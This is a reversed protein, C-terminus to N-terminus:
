RGPGGHQMNLAGVTIVSPDNGPSHIGGYRINGDLDKGSNGAACVVVIGAAVAQRAAVCLPDTQYSEGPHHGLSLNMVRINYLQKNQVCWEIGSIVTSVSGSGNGELVKVGVLDADPAAGTIEGQSNAGSGLVTGAVHTGHGNDDYAQTQNNILDKFAVCRSGSSNSHNWEPTNAVVGTDLVAVRIGTGKVGASSWVTPAGIAKIPENWQASVRRDPSVSFISPHKALARIMSQPLVFTAGNILKLKAVAQGGFSRALASSDIGTRNFRVIVRQSKGSNPNARVLADLDPAIGGAWAAPSAALLGLSVWGARCTWKLSLIGKM